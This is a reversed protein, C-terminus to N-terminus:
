ECFEMIVIFADQNFKDELPVDRIHHFVGNWDGFSYDFVAHHFPAHGVSSIPFDIFVQSLNVLIEWNSHLALASYLSPDFALFLDLFAPSHSDSQCELLITLLKLLTTLDGDFYVLSRM